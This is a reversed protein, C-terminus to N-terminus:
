IMLRRYGIRDGLYGFLPTAVLVGVSYGGYLLGLEGESTAHAPSYPTLPIFLGFILYDMFLAYAVVGSVIRSGFWAHGLM